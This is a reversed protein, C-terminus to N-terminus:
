LHLKYCRLQTKHLNCCDNKREGKLLSTLQLPATKEDALSPIRNSFEQSQIGEQGAGM